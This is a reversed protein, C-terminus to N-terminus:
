KYNIVNNANMQVKMCKMKTRLTKIICYLIVNTVSVSPVELSLKMFPTCGTQKLIFSMSSVMINYKDSLLAAIFERGLRNRSTSLVSSWSVHTHSYRVAIRFINRVHIYQYWSTATGKYNTLSLLLWSWWVRKLRYQHPDDNPFQGVFAVHCMQFKDFDWWENTRCCKRTCAINVTQYVTYENWTSTSTNSVPSVNPKCSNTVYKSFYFM